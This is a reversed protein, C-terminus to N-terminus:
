LNCVVNTFLNNKFSVFTMPISSSSEFGILLAHTQLSWWRGGQCVPAEQTATQRRSRFWWAKIFSTEQHIKWAWKKMKRTLHYMSALQYALQCLPLRKWFIQDQCRRSGITPHIWGPSLNFHCHHPRHNMSVKKRSQSLAQFPQFFIQMRHYQILYLIPNSICM